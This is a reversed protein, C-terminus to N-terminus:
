SGPDHPRRTAPLHLRWLDRDAQASPQLGNRPQAASAPKPRGPAALGQRRLGLYPPAHSSPGAGRLARRLVEAEAVRRERRGSSAASVLEALPTAGVVCLAQTIPSAELTAATARVLMTYQELKAASRGPVAAARAYLVDELEPVVASSDAVAAMSAALERRSAERRGEGPLARRKGCPEGSEAPRAPAKDRLLAEWQRKCQLACERVASSSAADRALRKVEVGLPVQCLDDVTLSLARLVRLLLLVSSDVRERTLASSLARLTEELPM